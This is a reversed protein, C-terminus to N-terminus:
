RGPKPARRPAQPELLSVFAKPSQGDLMRDLLVQARRSPKRDFWWANGPDQRIGM